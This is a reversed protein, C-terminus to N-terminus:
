KFFFNVQPGKGDQNLAIEVTYPGPAVYTVYRVSVGSVYKSTDMSDIWIVGSTNKSNNNVVINPLSATVGSFTPMVTFAVLQTCPSPGPDLPPYLGGETTDTDDTKALQISIGYLTLTSGFKGHATTPARTPGPTRTPRPTPRETPAPTPEASPADTPDPTAADSEVPTPSLEPATDTPDAESPDSTAPPTDTPEATVEDTQDTALSPEESEQAGAVTGGAKTMALPLGVAAVALAVVALIIVFSLPGSRNSRRLPPAAPARGQDALVEIVEPEAGATTVVRGPEGEDRIMKRKM